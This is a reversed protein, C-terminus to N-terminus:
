FTVVWKVFFMLSVVFVLVAVVAVMLIHLPSVQALDDQFESKKRIGLFSWAVTKVSRLFSPTNSVSTQIKANM